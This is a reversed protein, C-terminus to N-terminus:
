NSLNKECHACQYLSYEPDEYLIDTGIIMWGDNCKHKVSYMVSEIEKRACGYCLIAGDETFLAMQYGGPWAYQGARLTAKLDAVTEIERHTRSYNTRLPKREWHARRTDYLNGDSESVMFYDRM